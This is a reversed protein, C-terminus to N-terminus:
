SLDVLYNYSLAKKLNSFNVIHAFPAVVMLKDPTFDM